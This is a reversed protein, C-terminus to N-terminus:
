RAAIAGGDDSIIVEIRRNMLRGAATANSAVPFAEGYGIAEIRSREIGRAALAAMVSDARRQALRDNYEEDGVSDTFGEVQVRRQPHARLFEVLNDLARVAGPKLESKGSDFLVDGLTLVLGRPTPQAKLAELEQALRAAEAESQTSRNEAAAATAQAQRVEAERAALLVKTREAESNAVREEARKASAREVATRAQREALYAQHDVSAQPKRSKAAQEAADLSQRARELDVAGHRGVEPDSAAATVATRAAILQESDTPTGACGLITTVTLVSLLPLRISSSM